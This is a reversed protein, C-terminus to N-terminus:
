WEPALRSDATDSFNGTREQASPGPDTRKLARPRAHGGYDGFFFIKQRKLPGGVTGGPQNQKFAAREPSFYNRADPEYQPLVRLSQRSFPRKGKTVVNIIGGNHNGYQPDFNNTLVRFEEIPYSEACCGNWREHTRL